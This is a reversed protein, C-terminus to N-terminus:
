VTSDGAPTSVAERGPQGHRSNPTRCGHQRVAMRKGLRTTCRMGMGIRGVASRFARICALLRESGVGYSCGSTHICSGSWTARTALKSHPLWAAACGDEQASAPRLAYGYRDAGRSVSICSRPSAVKERECRLIVRQRPYLKGVLNGTDRTQLAAAVSGRWGDEQGPAHHLAYGYRDAGSSVSICSRPSAVKERECRLIVRQRPYLKGVLNGTNCRKSHPLWAAACGDEQASAPQLATPAVCADGRCSSVL